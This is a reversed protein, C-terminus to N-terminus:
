RAWNVCGKEDIHVLCTTKSVFNNAAPLYYDGSLLYGRSQDSAMCFPEMAMGGPNYQKHFNRYQGAAVGDWIIYSFSTDTCIGNSAVLMIENVGLSPNFTFDKQSSAFVGNIFWSFSNSNLSQNEFFIPSGNSVVSDNGPFYKAKLSCINNHEKHGNLCYANLSLSFLFVCLINRECNM